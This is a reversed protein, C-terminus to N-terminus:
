VVPFNLPAQSKEKRGAVHEDRSGYNPRARDSGRVSLVIFAAHM